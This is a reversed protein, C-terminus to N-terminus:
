VRRNSMRNERLDNLYELSMKQMRFNIYPKASHKPSAAKKWINIYNEILTSRFLDSKKIELGMKEFFDYVDNMSTELLRTVITESTDSDVENFSELVDMMAEKLADLGYILRIYPHPHSRLKLKSESFEDTENNINKKHNKNQNEKCITTAEFLDFQCYLALVNLFLIKGFLLLDSENQISFKSERSFSFISLTM